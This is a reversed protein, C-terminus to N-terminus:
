RGGCRSPIRRFRGGFLELLGSGTGASTFGVNSARLEPQQAPDCTTVPGTCPNDATSCVPAFHSVDFPTATLSSYQGQTTEVAGLVGYGEANRESFDLQMGFTGSLTTTQPPAPESPPAATRQPWEFVSTDYSIDVTDDLAEGPATLRVAAPIQLDDLQAKRIFGRKLVVAPNARVQKRLAKRAAAKRAAAKRQAKARAHAHEKDSSTAYAHAPSAWPSASPPWPRGGPGGHIHRAPCSAEM